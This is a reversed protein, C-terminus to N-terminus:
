MWSLKLTMQNMYQISIFMELLLNSFVIYSLPLRNKDMRGSTDLIFLMTLM